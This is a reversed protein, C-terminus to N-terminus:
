SAFKQPEPHGEISSFSHYIMPKWQNGNFKYPKGNIKMWQPPMWIRLLASRLECLITKRVLYRWPKEIEHLLFFKSSLCGYSTRLNQVRIDPVDQSAWLRARLNSWQNSVRLLSPFYESPYDSLNHAGFCRESCRFRYYVCLPSQGIHRHSAWSWIAASFPWM